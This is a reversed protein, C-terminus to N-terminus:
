GPGGGWGLVVEAGFLGLVWGGVRWWGITEM